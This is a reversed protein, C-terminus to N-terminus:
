NKVFFMEYGLSPALADVSCKALYKILPWSASGHNMEYAFIDNYHIIGDQQPM